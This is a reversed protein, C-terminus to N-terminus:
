LAVRVHGACGGLAPGVGVARGVPSADVSAALVRAGDLVRAVVRGLTFHDVM